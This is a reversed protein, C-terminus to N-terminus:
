RRHNMPPRTAPAGVLKFELGWPLLVVELRAEGSRLLARVDDMDDGLEDLPVGEGGPTGKLGEREAKERATLHSTPELSTLRQCISAPNQLSEM